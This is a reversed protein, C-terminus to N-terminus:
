MSAQWPKGPGPIQRVLFILVPKVSLLNLPFFTKRDCVSIPRKLLESPPTLQFLEIWPMGARQFLVVYQIAKSGRTFPNIQPAKEM